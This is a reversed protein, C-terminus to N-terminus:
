RNELDKLGHGTIVCVCTNKKLRLEKWAAYSLVGSPEADIGEM